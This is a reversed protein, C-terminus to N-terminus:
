GPTLARHPGPPLIGPEWELAGPLRAVMNVPMTWAVAPMAAMWSRAPRRVKVSSKGWPKQWSRAMPALTDVSPTHRVTM